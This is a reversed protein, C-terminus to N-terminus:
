AEMKDHRVRRRADEAFSLDVPKGKELRDLAEGLIAKAMEVRKRM